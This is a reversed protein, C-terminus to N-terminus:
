IFGSRWVVRGIVDIDTAPYTEQPYNSNDSVVRLIGNPQRYLRKIRTLEDQKIAFISGDKIESATDVVVIDGDNLFPSMGDGTVNMAFVSQLTVGRSVFISKQFIISKEPNDIFPIQVNDDDLAWPTVLVDLSDFIDSNSIGLAQSLKNVTEARPQSQGSEYKSIITPTLGTINALEKQSMGAAIRAEKLLTRFNLQSTNM